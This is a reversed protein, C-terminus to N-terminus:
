LCVVRAPRCRGRRGPPPTAEMLRLVTEGDYGVMCQMGAPELIGCITGCLEHDTHAVMVRVGPVDTRGHRPLEVKFPARCKACRLTLRKGALKERDIRFRAACAPCSVIM